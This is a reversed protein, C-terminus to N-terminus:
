QETSTELEAEIEELDKLWSALLETDDKKSPEEKPQFAITRSELSAPEAVTGPTSSEIEELDKKWTNIASNEEAAKKLTTQWNTEAGKQLINEISAFASDIDASLVIAVEDGPAAKFYTISALLVKYPRNNAVVFYNEHEDQTVIGIAHRRNVPGIQKYLFM